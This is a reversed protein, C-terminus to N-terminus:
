QGVEFELLEIPNAGVNSIQHQGEQAAVCLYGARSVLHSESGGCVGGIRGPGLAVLVYSGHSHLKITQGPRLSYRVIRTKSNELQVVGGPIAGRPATDTVRESSLLEVAVMHIESDGLNTVRHVDRQPHVALWVEGPKDPPEDVPAAGAKEDRTPGPALTVGVMDNVHAHYLTRGHPPIVVDLVRLAKGAYVVRHLPEDQVPVASAPTSGVLGLALILCLM